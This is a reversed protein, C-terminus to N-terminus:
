IVIIHDDSPTLFPLDDLNSGPPIIGQIDDVDLESIQNANGSSYSREIWSEYEDNWHNNKPLHVQYFHM